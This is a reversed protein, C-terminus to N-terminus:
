DEIGVGEDAAIAETAEATKRQQELQQKNLEVLERQYDEGRMGGFIASLAERTGAQAAGVAGTKVPAATTTESESKKIVPTIPKKDVATQLADMTGAMDTALKSELGTVMDGLSKELESPIRDAIQPIESVTSKFGELLPTWTLELATMGGSSIYEWIAEM